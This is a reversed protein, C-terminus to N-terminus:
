GNVTALFEMVQPLVVDSSAFAETHNLGALSVFTANPLQTSCQRIATYVSDADGSYLLCPMTMTPLVEELSPRDRAAALLAELDASLLRARYEPWLSGIAAEMSVLYVEAGQEIGKTISQRGGEFSRAQPHAGGILLAECREPAFRALGFGIWGGMSYGWYRARGIRLDDLVAVVDSVRRQLAYAEPSHPKDSAGHGRADLLVLRYDQKLAQVYGLEYWSELSDGFGHQLVLPPGQGEMQYHIRVDKNHAYPM